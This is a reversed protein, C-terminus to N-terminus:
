DILVLEVNIDTIVAFNAPNPTIAGRYDKCSFITLLRNNFYYRYGDPPYIEHSRILYEFGYHNMFDRFAQHGFRKIGEGRFNDCFHPVVRKQIPDNWIMQFIGCLVDKDEVIKREKDFKKLKNIIEIDQPIGGHVCFIKKNVIACVPLCEYLEVLYRFDDIKEFREQFVDFFGYYQNMELTEHNGKLIYYRDPNSIKLSLVYCLCELQGPGRDVIDGLFLIKEAELSEIERLVLQLSELNGHIDGIVAIKEAPKSANLELVFPEKAFIKKSKSIISLFDELCINGAKEPSHLIDEVIKM